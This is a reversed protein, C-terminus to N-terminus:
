KSKDKNEIRERRKEELEPILERSLEERYMLYLRVDGTKKFLSWLLEYDM